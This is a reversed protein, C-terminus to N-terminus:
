KKGNNDLLYFSGAAKFPVKEKPARSRAAKWEAETMANKPVFGYTKEYFDIKRASDRASKWDGHAQKAKQLFSLGSSSERQPSRTDRHTEPPFPSLGAIAPAEKDDKQSLVHSTSCAELAKEPLHEEDGQSSTYPPVKETSYRRSTSHDLHADTQEDAENYSPPPISNQKDM